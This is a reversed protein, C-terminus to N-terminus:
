ENEISDVTGVFIGHLVYRKDDASDETCTSLTLIREGSEPASINKYLNKSMALNIYNQYAEPNNNFLNFTGDDLNAIYSSFIEYKNWKGDPLLIYIYQHENRYDEKMFKDLTGFMAGNHMNHGFVITHSDTFDPNNSSDLFISGAVLYDKTYSRFLYYDNSKGQLVPYSIDTGKIYIWGKVDPNAAILKDLDVYSITGDDNQVVFDDQADKYFDDIEKYNMLIDVVKYLAFLFVVICVLMLVTYIGKRKGKTEKEKM